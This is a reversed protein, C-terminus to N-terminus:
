VLDGSLSFCEGLLYLVIIAGGCVSGSENISDTFELVLELAFFCRPMRTIPAQRWNCHIRTCDSVNSFQICFISFIIDSMFDWEDEDLV